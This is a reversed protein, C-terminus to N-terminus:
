EGRIPIIAARSSAALHHGLITSSTVMIIEVCEPEIEVGALFGSESQISGSLGNRAAQFYM